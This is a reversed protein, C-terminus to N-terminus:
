LLKKVHALCKKIEHPRMEMTITGKYDITGLMQFIKEFDIIGDGVPLHLDDDQSIGGRNDHLHIHKIKNPCNRMFSFSTHEKALLQGHGLDLTLGLLPVAEFIKALHISRESLNELCIMIGSDNATKIIRMLMEIKYEIAEQSVYRSDMWLHLTLLKMGLEPMISLIHMLKPLYHEELSNTNNPDGEQPGHCLYYMGLQKRLTQYKNKLASFKAADTIPIEAFELGLEHLAIVDEPSRATGGLHIQTKKRIM